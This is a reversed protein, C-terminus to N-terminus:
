VPTVDHFRTYDICRDGDPTKSFIDVFRMNFLIEQAFFSHRAHITQSVTKDLGTLAVVIVAESEALSAPTAGYLPSRDDIRHMVTWTEEFISTQSRVLTLDHLRRMFEGEQTVENRVLTVRMQAEVIQNGRQNATRFMLTPVGDYPPIVAVKSFLVRATPRSFRAFALGTVMAVGLLGGLAEITVVINAYFTRPYMAGYGITALTQVSFFFADWFSGPRANQICDGGALYLLAFIANSSVYLLVILALLGPWPLTLLLHYLDGWYHSRGKRVITVVANRRVLRTQSKHRHRKAM